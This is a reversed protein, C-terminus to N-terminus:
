VAVGRCLVRRYTGDQHRVGHEHEFHRTEDGLHANLATTFAESDDPHMREFWADPRCVVDPPLGLM